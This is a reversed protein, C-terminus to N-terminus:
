SLHRGQSLWKSGGGLRIAVDSVVGLPEGHQHNVKQTDCPPEKTGAYEWPASKQTNKERRGPRQHEKTKAGQSTADHSGRTTGVHDGERIIGPEM